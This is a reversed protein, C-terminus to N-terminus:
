SAQRATGTRAVALSHEAGPGAAILAATADGQDVHVPVRSLAGATGAGLQGVNNRGWALLQGTTTLALSYVDGACIEGVRIGSLAVKVPTFAVEAKSDDGLQGYRDSGWALV